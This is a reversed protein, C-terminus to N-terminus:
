WKKAKISKKLVSALEDFHGSLNLIQSKSYGLERLKNLQAPTMRELVMKEYPSYRVEGFPVQGKRKWVRQKIEHTPSLKEAPRYEPEESMIKRHEEQKKRSVKKAEIDEVMKQIQRYRQPKDVKEKKRPVTLEEIGAREKPTIPKKPKSQTVRPIAKKKAPAKVPRVEPKKETVAAPAGGYVNEYLARGGAGLGFGGLGGAAGAGLVSLLDAQPDTMYKYGAALPAGIAGGTLGAQLSPSYKGLAKYAGTIDSWGLAQKQMNYGALTAQKLMHDKNLASQKQMNYGDVFAQQDM